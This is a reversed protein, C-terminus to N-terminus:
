RQGRQAGRPLRHHFLAARAHPRPPAEHGARRTHYACRRALVPLARRLATALRVSERDFIAAARRIGDGELAFSLPGTTGPPLANM